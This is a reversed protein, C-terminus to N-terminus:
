NVLEKEKPPVALSIWESADKVVRVLEHIDINPNTLLIAFAICAIKIRDVREGEVVGEIKTILKAIDEASAQTYGFNSM